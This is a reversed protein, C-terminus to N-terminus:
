SPKGIFLEAVCKAGSSERIGFHLNVNAGHATADILQFITANKYLHRGGARDSERSTSQLLEKEAVQYHYPVVAIFQVSPLALPESATLLAAELIRKVDPLDFSPSDM